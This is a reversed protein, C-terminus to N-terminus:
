PKYPYTDIPVDATALKMGSDTRRVTIWKLWRRNDMDPYDERFHFGRSETRMLSPFVKRKTRPLGWSIRAVPVNEADDWRIADVSCADVCARCGTCLDPDVNIAHSMRGERVTNRPVTLRGFLLRDGKSGHELTKYVTRMSTM